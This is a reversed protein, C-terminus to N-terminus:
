FPHRLSLYFQPDYDEFASLGVDFRLVFSQGWYIGAFAGFSPLIRGLDGGWDDYDVGIWGLDGFAGLLGQFKGDRGFVTWRLEGQGILKIRGIYRRQRIGRGIVQGGFAIDNGFGGLSGMVVTPTDGFLLDVIVRSVWVLRHNQTLPLYGAAALNVGFFRWESGVASGAGRVSATLLYGRAPRREHDRRDKIVGLQVQSLFGEEGGPFDRAYLSGAFPGSVGVYGSFTYSGTWGLTLEPGGGWPRWRLGVRGGPRMVRFRYYSELFAGYGDDGPFLGVRNAETQAVRRDCRVENGLGCYHGVRTATFSAALEVRLPLGFVGVREYVMEYFQVLETSLLAILQLKDRFPAYDDDYHFLQGLIAGAFGIDSSFGVLPIVFWEYPEPLEGQAFAPAPPDEGVGWRLWWDSREDEVPEGVPDPDPAPEEAVLAVGEDDGELDLEPTQAFASTSLLAVLAAGLRGFM